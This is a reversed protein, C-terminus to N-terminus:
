ANQQLAAAQGPLGPFSRAPRPPLLYNARKLVFIFENIGNNTTAGIAPNQLSAYSANMQTRTAIFDAIDRQLSVFHLGAQGGDTTNFDRRLIIPRGHRRARASAQAHGLVGYRNIAASVAGPDSPADTRIRKQEAVTTQPSYMRAVRDAESLDRYWSDLSLTMYSVAMTTGEAYPGAPITVADESAQNRRLNSAFGMYLPATAPVPHDAPIGAVDQHAAPLGAGTFGSRTEKWALAPTVAHPGQLLAVQIEALRREHDCALHLCLHHDELTPQEFDSLARPAPLPADRHGLVEAFYRHSWGVSFLLGQPGWPYRRELERLAAELVRVHGAGPRGRVDFFLLRDFRPAVPNGVGDRALTAEWAHQRLPREPAPILRVEPLPIQAEGPASSGCAALAGPLTAAGAGVGARLLFARRSLSM